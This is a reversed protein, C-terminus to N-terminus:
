GFLNYVIQPVYGRSMVGDLPGVTFATVPKSVLVRIAFRVLLSADGDFCELSDEIRTLSQADKIIKNSLKKLDSCFWLGGDKSCVLIIPSAWPSTSKDIVGIEMMQQLHKKVEECQHPPIRCYHEKFPTKDDLKIDHQVVSTKGLESLNVAFLHQYEMLLDRVSQEQQEDWSEIGNLNLSGFLKQLRNRNEKCLNKLPDGKAANGAVRKPMNKNLQPVAMPPVIVPRWM